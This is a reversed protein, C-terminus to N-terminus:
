RSRRRTSTTILPRLAKALAVAAYRQPKGMDSRPLNSVAYVLLPPIPLESAAAVAQVLDQAAKPVVSPAVDAAFDPGLDLVLCLADVGVNDPLVIAYGDRISGFAAIFDDYATLDVTVGGINVTENARGELYLYGDNSFHGADSSVFWGDQLKRAELEPDLYIGVGPASKMRIRGKTGAPLPTGAEDAIELELGPRVVALRGDYSRDEAQTWLAIDGIETAGYFILIHKFRRRMNELLKASPKGGGVQAQLFRAQSKTKDMLALFKSFQSPSGVIQNIAIRELIRRNVATLNVGGALLTRIMTKAGHGSQPRFLCLCIPPKGGLVDPYDYSVRAWDDKATMAIAKPKGTTGSSFTIRALQEPDSFGDFDEAKAGEYDQPRFDQMFVTKLSWTPAERDDQRKLLAHTVRGEILRMRAVPGGTWTAGLLACACLALIHATHDDVQIAVCSGQKVGQHKLFLAFKLIYSALGRYSLSSGKADVYAIRDQYKQCARLVGFGINFDNQM